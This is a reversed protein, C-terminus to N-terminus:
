VIAGGTNGGGTQVGGHRHQKLSITAAKVDTVATVTAPSEVNGQTDFVVGNINVKGDATLRIFGNSNEMFSTGDNTMGIRQTGDRNRLRIGNNTFAPIVNPLSRIGPVFMADQMDHFRGLPNTAVGGTNKWGDICRQSFVIMGECGPEIQYELVFDDGPFCVPVDEVHPPVVEAGSMEVRLVGIQVQARQTAPDFALIHGPIATYTGKMLERFVIRQAQAPKINQTM